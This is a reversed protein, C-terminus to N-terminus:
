RSRAARSTAGASGSWAAFGRRCRRRTSGSARRSRTSTAPSSTSPSPTSRAFRAAGPHRRATRAARARAAAREVQLVVRPPAARVAAAIRRRAVGRAPRPAHAASPAVRSDLVPVRSLFGTSHLRERARSRSDPWIQAIREVVAPDRAEQLAVVDPNAARIVEAIEDARGVGGERINYTLLRVDRPTAVESM